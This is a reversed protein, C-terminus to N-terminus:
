ASRFIIKHLMRRDGHDSKKAKGNFVVHKHLGLFLHVIVASILVFVIIVFTLIYTIMSLM